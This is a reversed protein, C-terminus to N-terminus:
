RLPTPRARARPSGSETRGAAPRAQVGMPAQDAACHGADEDGVPGVQVVIEHIEALVLFAADPGHVGPDDLRQDLIIHDDDIEEVLDVFAGVGPGIEGRGNGRAGLAALHDVAADAVGLLDDFDVVEGGEAPAHIRRGDAVHRQGPKLTGQRM